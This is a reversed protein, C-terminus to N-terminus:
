ASKMKDLIPIIQDFSPRKGPDENMCIKILKYMHSSIGPPITIRLDELAIKMGIEMPSLDVFPVQRTAMEWLLISYSWMDAAKINIDTYKKQLAEPAM